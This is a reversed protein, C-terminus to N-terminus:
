HGRPIRRLGRRERVDAEEQYTLAILEYVHAVARHGRARAKAVVALCAKAAGVAAGIKDRGEAADFRRAAARAADMLPGYAATAADEEAHPITPAAM